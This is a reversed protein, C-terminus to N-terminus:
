VQFIGSDFNLREFGAAIVPNGSYRSIRMRGTPRRVGVDGVRDIVGDHHWTWQLSSDNDVELQIKFRSAQLSM